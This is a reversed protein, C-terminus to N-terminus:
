PRNCLFYYIRGVWEHIAYSSIQFVDVCPIFDRVTCAPSFYIYNVPILVIDEKAFKKRFAYESRAIHMASTM